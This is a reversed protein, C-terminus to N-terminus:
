RGNEFHPGEEDVQRSRPAIREGAIEGIVDLVRRYGDVADEYNEPATDFKASESYNKEKLQVVEQLKLNNLTFLLDPNDNLFNSM